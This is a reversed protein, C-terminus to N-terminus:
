KFSVKMIIEFKQIKDRKGTSGKQRISRSHDGTFLEWKGTSQQVPTQM